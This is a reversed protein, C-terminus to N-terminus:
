VPEDAPDKEPEAPQWDMDHTAARTTVDDQFGAWGWGCTCIARWMGTRRNREFKVSHQM